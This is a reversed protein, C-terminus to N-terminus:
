PQVLFEVYEHSNAGVGSPGASIVLLDAVSPVSLYQGIQSQANVQAAAYFGTQVGGGRQTGFTYTTPSAYATVNNVRKIVGVAGYPVPVGLTQAAGANPVPVVYTRFAKTIAGESRAISAKMEMRAPFALSNFVASRTFNDADWQCSVTVQNGWVSLFQDSFGDVETSFKAASSGWEIVFKSFPYTIAGGGAVTTILGAMTVIWAQPITSDATLIVQPQLGAAPLATTGESVLYKTGGLPTVQQGKPGQLGVRVLEAALNRIIIDPSM